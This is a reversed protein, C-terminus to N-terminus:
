AAGGELRRCYRLVADLDFRYRRKVLKGPLQKTRALTEVTSINVNLIVSLEEATLLLKASM